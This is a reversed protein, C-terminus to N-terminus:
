TREPETGPIPRRLPRGELARAIEDAVLDQLRRVAVDSYWAAHPSLILNPASRLPSDAALPEEVFVDLAAGALRGRVLADALAGEDVLDGRATNVITATPKMAALTRANVIRLTEPTSPAHLSLCDSRALLTDRDVMDVPPDGASAAYFPDHAILTVGFGRLRAAVARAIRGFGLFGVVTQALPPMPAAVAQVAWEGRRLSADLATIRRLLALALAATHDAVEDTCYDPVYAARLGRARIADLDLNNYGVGYRIVTGGEAMTRAAAATFPAFQVVAVTAGAVAEAVAEPTRADLRAFAAGAAQAAAAEPAVDAFTADTVVVRPQPIM